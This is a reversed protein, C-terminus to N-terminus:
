APPQGPTRSDRTPAPVARVLIEMLGDRVLRQRFGDLRPLIGEFSPSHVLQESGFDFSRSRSSVSQHYAPCWSALCSGPHNRATPRYVFTM